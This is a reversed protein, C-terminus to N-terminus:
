EATKSSGSVTRALFMGPTLGCLAKFENALHSQDYFGADLALQAWAPDSRQRLARLCAHLRALRRFARPTVGVGEHFLQQLRREGVGIARAVERPTARGGSATFLAAAHVTAAPVAAEHSRLRRLLAAQLLAARAADDPAQALQDLLRGAEGRWLADLPVAQGSIAGAPVGLLAAAAGPRLTVSLGEIRGHLRLLAPAQLAGVAELQLGPAGNGSPPDGLNFILRVAGDPLVRELVEHGPPIWERCAMVRVVSSRLPPALAMDRLSGEPAQLHPGHAPDGELRLFLRETM